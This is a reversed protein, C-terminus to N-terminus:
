SFHKRQRFRWRAGGPSKEQVEESVAPDQPVLWPILTSDNLYLCMILIKWAFRDFSRGHTQVELAQVAEQHGVDPFVKYIERPRVDEDQLAEELFTM